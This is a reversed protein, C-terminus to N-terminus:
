LYKSVQKLEQILAKVDGEKQSLGDQICHEIHDQVFARKANTLANIVAHLQQGVDACPRGIEIMEIVSELHGKARKLRKNIDPHSQHQGM